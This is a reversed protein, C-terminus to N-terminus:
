EGLVKERLEEYLEGATRGSGASVQLFKADRQMQHLHKKLRSRQMKDGGSKDVADLIADIPMIELLLSQSVVNLGKQAWNRAGCAQFHDFVQVLQGSQVSAIDSVSHSFVQEKIAANYVTRIDGYNDLVEGVTGCRMKERVKAAQLMRWEFRITNKPLGAVSLKDHRMKELKDYVCVEQRGNKWLLGNEYGRQETRKGDILALMPKYNSFPESGVVNTFADMRTLQAAKINTLIGVSKLMKEAEQFAQATGDRDVPHYNNGGAFKPIEFRAFCVAGMGTGDTRPMPKITVNFHEEQFKAFAGEVVRGGEQWLPFNRTMAGTETDVPSPHLRLKPERVKYEPLLVQITDLM